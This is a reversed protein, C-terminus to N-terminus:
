GVLSPAAQHLGMAITNAILTRGISSMALNYDDVNSLKCCEVLICFQKLKRMVNYANILYSWKKDRVSAQAIQIPKVATQLEAPSGDIIAQAVQMELMGHNPLLYVEIGRREPNPSSNFHLVTSFNCTALRKARTSFLPDEQDTRSGIVKYGLIELKEKLKLGTDYNLDAEIADGYRAGPHNKGHGYDIGHTIMSYDINM